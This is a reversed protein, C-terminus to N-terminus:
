EESAEPLDVVKNGPAIGQEKFWGQRVELAYLANGRSRHITHEDNPTMDEINLIVGENDIFAISLPAPTNKMWFGLPQPRPFIFLMGRGAPLPFRFMLGRERQEPTSAIEAVIQHKGIRLTKTPLDGQAKAHLHTVILLTVFAFVLTSFTLQTKRM